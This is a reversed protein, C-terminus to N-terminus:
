INENKFHYSIMGKDILNKEKLYFLTLIRHSRFLGNLCCFLTEPKKFEVAVNNFLSNDILEPFLPTEVTLLPTLNFISSCLDQIEKTIGFHNTVVILFETPIQYERVIQLFNYLTYGNGNLNDYYDVDHHLILIRQNRDFSHNKYSSLM